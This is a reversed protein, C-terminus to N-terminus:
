PRELAINLELLCPIGATDVAFRHACADRLKHAPDAQMTWGTAMAYLARLVGKHTVLIADQRVEGLLPALRAQVDRPSEGGPPRFDLGRAENRAMEAGLEARLDALRRGEWEGWDMEALRPEPQPALGLHRATEMARLLPSALCPAASWGEPLRARQLFERGSGNLPVDCRGQVRGALNWDTTAHRIVLIETM